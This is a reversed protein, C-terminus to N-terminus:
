PNVWTHVMNKWVADVDFIYPEACYTPVMEVM